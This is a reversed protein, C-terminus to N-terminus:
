RVMKTDEACMRRNTVPPAPVASVRTDLIVERQEHLRNPVPRGM